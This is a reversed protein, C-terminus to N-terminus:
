VLFNAACASVCVHKGSSNQISFAKREQAPRAWGRDKRSFGFLFSAIRKMKVLFLGNAFGNSLCVCHICCLSFM